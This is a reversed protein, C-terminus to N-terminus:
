KAFPFDNNSDHGADALAKYLVNRLSFYAISALVGFTLGEWLGSDDEVWAYEEAYAVIAACPAATDVLDDSDYQDIRGRKVLNEFLSDCEKDLREIVTERGTEPESKYDDIISRITDKVATKIQGKTLTARM